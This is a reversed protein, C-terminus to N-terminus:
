IFQEMHIYIVRNTFTPTMIVNTNRLNTNTVALGLQTKQNNLLISIVSIVCHRIM